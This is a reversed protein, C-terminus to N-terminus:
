CPAAGPAHPAPEASAAQTELSALKVLTQRDVKGTPLLPVEEVVIIRDPIERRPMRELCAAHIDASAMQAGGTPVCFVAIGTGYDSEGSTVVVAVEIGPLGMIAAEIDAFMVLMGSRNVAHDSRGQVQLRGDPGLRGLDHMPFWDDARRPAGDRLAGCEDAYGSFGYPHRCWLEGLVGTESAEEEGGGDMATARQGVRVEVDGLPKGVSHARAGAPDDPSAAAIAGLETSGYLQVLPGYRDEYRDFTDGRLRDGATV